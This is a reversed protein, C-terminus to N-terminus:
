HEILFSNLLNSIDFIKRLLESFVRKVDALLSGNGRQTSPCCTLLPERNEQTDISSRIGAQWGNCCTRLSQHFLPDKIPAIRGETLEVGGM